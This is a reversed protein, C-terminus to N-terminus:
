GHHLPRWWQGGLYVQSNYPMLVTFGIREILSLNLNKLMTDHVPFGDRALKIAPASLETFSKTGYKKLISIIVDPSAPLLQSWIDMKPVTTWGRSRFLDITAKAPATGAGTYSEVTKTGADYILIPAVGPFSAAEGYTVNLALLAAVAADVANGGNAMTDLAAQTAWPTGAAAMYHEATVAPRDKLHTDDYSMSERPGQPLILYTAGLVVIIGAIVSGVWILATRLRSKKM